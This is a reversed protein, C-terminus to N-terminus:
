DTTVASLIIFKLVKQITIFFRSIASANSNIQIIRRENVLKDIIKVCLEININWFELNQETIFNRTTVRM